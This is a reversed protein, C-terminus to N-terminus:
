IKLNDKWENIKNKLNLNEEKIASSNNYEELMQITLKKRNFPDSEDSLLHKIIVSKDMFIDSTPIKVPEKILTTLLPDCLEEPPDYM